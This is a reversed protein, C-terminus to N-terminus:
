HCPGTSDFLPGQDTCSFKRKKGTDHPVCAKIKGTCQGGKGDSALFSIEYVRGDGLGSREMRIQATPTGVGSGDPCTKRAGKEKLPEDQRIGTVQIAVPDGDPDTVGQVTVDAFQGTPPWFPTATFTAADCNPAANEMDEPAILFGLGPDDSCVEIQSPLVTILADGEATVDRPNRSAPCAPHPGPIGPAQLAAAVAAAVEAARQGASTPVTVSCDGLTSQEKLTLGGGLAGSAGTELTTKLIQIQNVVPAGLDSLTFCVGKAKGPAAHIATTLHGGTLSPASVRLRAPTVFVDEPEPEAPGTELLAVVGAARCSASANLANRARELVEEADEGAQFSANASCLTTTANLDSLAVIINFEGAPPPPTPAPDPRSKRAVPPPGGPLGSIGMLTSPPNTLPPCGLITETALQGGCVVVTSSIPNGAQTCGAITGGGVCTGNFCAWAVQHGSYFSGLSTTLVGDSDTRIEGGMADHDGSACVTGDQLLIRLDCSQNPLFNHGYVPIDWINGAVWGEFNSIFPKSLVYAGRGHTAAYARGRLEDLSIQYVPVNPLGGSFRSWDSAGVPRRYIGQDTGLWLVKPPGEEVTLTNAPVDPLSQSFATWSGGGNETKWVHAGINFGSFSVYATQDDDPDVAIWTVPATPLGKAAGGISPWCSDLTCAGTTTFIGGGYYGIYIRSSASPAVAIASIADQGGVIEPQATNSRVSSVPTWVGGDNTSKFLRNTGFYLPHPFSPDQVLVPYFSRPEAAPIGSSVESWGSGGTSSRMPVETGITPCAEAANCFRFTTSYMKMVDDLDMVSFGGDGCCGTNTWARGGNWMSTGNDQSGAIVRGTLPSAGLSQFGTVELDDNRPTWTSGGDDSVAIGGDSTEYARSPNSAAFVVAHHDLHIIWGLTNADSLSFTQGSDTSQHLNVGAVFVKSSLSPSVTLEHTYRSYQEPCNSVCTPGDLMESWMHGSNGSKFISPTCSALLSDPCHGFSAYITSSDSPAIAVETWDFTTTTVDPLGNANPCGAPRPIGDNLPCWDTGGNTSRFVGRGFFGAYLTNSDTPDMELDTPKAGAAGSVTLKTWTAGDDDSRYIGYGGPSPEPATRTSESASATAGSSLTVFIRKSAGSTTPDLVVNLISGLEFNYPNGTRRVWTFTSIEGGSESGILLGRGYYTDRRIANEGTGAYVKACGTPSCQDLALSGIALSVEQDSKPTWNAGADSSHWVGGGATGVWVDDPNQPNVAVATSRGTVGGNFFGNIPAPGIPFWNDGEIGARIGGRFASLLAVVVIVRASSLRIRKM